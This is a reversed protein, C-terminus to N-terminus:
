RILGDMWEYRERERERERQGDTQEDIRRGETWRDTQGDGPGLIMDRM